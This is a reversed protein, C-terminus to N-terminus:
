GEVGGEGTEEADAGGSGVAELADAEFRDAVEEAAIRASVVVEAGEARDGLEADALLLGADDGDPGGALALDSPAHAAGLGDDAVLRAVYTHDPEVLGVDGAAELWVALDHEGAADVEELALTDELVGSELGPAILEEVSSSQHGDIRQCLAEIGLGNALKSLSRDVAPRGRHGVDQGFINAGLLREERDGIPQALDVERGVVVAEGLGLSAEGEFLQKQKLNAHQALPLLPLCLKAHREL